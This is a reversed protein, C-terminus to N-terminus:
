VLWMARVNVWSKDGLIITDDIFQFHSVITLDNNGVQYGSFINNVVMAEMMVNLGETAL